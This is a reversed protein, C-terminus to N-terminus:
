KSCSRITRSCRTWAHRHSRHHGADSRRYAWRESAAASVPQSCTRLRWTVPTRAGECEGGKPLGRPWGSSITLPGREHHKAHPKWVLQDNILWTAASRTTSCRRPKGRVSWPHTRSSLNPDSIASEVVDNLARLWALTLRAADEDNLAAARARDLREVEVFRTEFSAPTQALLVVLIAALPAM